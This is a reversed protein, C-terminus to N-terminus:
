DEKTDLKSLMDRKEDKIKGEHLQYRVKSALLNGLLKDNM